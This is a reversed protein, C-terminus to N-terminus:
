GAEGGIGHGEDLFREVEAVFREPDAHHANHRQGPLIAVRGDPLADDLAATGLAFIPASAGGLLQLVPQRAAAGLREIATADGDARDATLERLITGAIAVRVPWLPSAEFAMLDLDSMGAVRRLFLRLITPRDHGAEAATLADVLDPEEFTLGPPAPASEYTVLRRLHDGALPAASLAVRGGFSHGVVDVPRGGRAAIVAVVAAVDEAEREIAYAPGDGSAGRGRRDMAFVARRAAFLPGVVRFTSHDSGAGHILLLPPGSALGARFWAISTGDASGTHGSPAAPSTPSWIDPETM